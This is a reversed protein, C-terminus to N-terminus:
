RERLREGPKADSVVREPAWKGDSEGDEIDTVRSVEGSM